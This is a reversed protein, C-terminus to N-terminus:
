RLDTRRLSSGYIAKWYEVILEGWIRAGPEQWADRMLFLANLPWLASGQWVPIARSSRVCAAPTDAPSAALRFFQFDNLCSRNRKIGLGPKLAAAACRPCLGHFCTRCV